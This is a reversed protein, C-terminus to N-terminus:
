IGMDQLVQTIYKIEKAAESCGYYEAESSSLSVSKQARSKWLIPVGLLFLIFGTVSRRTDMDGAWDSDTYVVLEWILEANDAFDEINPQLRLGYMETDIVFKIARFLEKLAAKNAKDMCKTLERVVNSIDPRSHKVLYLLMGVGSHYLM